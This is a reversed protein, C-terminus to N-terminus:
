KNSPVPIVPKVLINTTPTVIQVDLSETHTMPKSNRAKTAAGFGEKSFSAKIENTESAIAM